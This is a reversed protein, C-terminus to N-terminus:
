KKDGGSKYYKKYGLGLLVASVAAFLVATLQNLPLGTNFLIMQDVRFSEVIFRVVGYGLFYYLVIEGNFKKHPRYFLLALMVFFNLVIEYLFTPHVQIYDVGYRTYVNDWIEDTLHRLGSAQDLRIQMAFLGDSYGGFAERNFFNGFRGIVQGVLMSPAATDAIVTFPIKKYKGYFFATLACAIIGGFIALGGSRFAFFAELFNQGAHTTNWNFIVYYLRLGFLAAPLGIMLLTTYDDVKQGSKKVWHIGVFYAAIIGLVIMVAYMYIDIFNSVWPVVQPVRNFEIGLNPFIIDPSNM